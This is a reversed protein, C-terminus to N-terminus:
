EPREDILLLRSPVLEETPSASEQEQQRKVVRSEQRLREFNGASLTAGHQEWLWDPWASEVSEFNVWDYDQEDDPEFLEGDYDQEDDSPRLTTKFISPLLSSERFMSLSHRAADLLQHDRGKPCDFLCRWPKAACSEHIWHFKRHGYMSIAQRINWSPVLTCGLQKESPPRKCCHWYQQTKHDVYNYLLYLPIAGEDRSYRELVDIQFSGSSNVRANLHDYRGSQSLKKAQIAFVTEQNNHGYIRVELDAGIRAEKKKDIQFLKYRNPMCSVFKLILLETLTEEGLQVGFKRAQKLMSWTDEAIQETFAM